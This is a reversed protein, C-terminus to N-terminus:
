DGCGCGTPAEAPRNTPQILHERLMYAEVEDGSVDALMHGNIEVCPSLTQGSKEVMERRQAPDRTIDRDEFPLEYKRLMARVGNSWGCTPKLYAIINPQQM